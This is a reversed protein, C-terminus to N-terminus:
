IGLEKKLENIVKRLYTDSPLLSINDISVIVNRGIVNRESISVITFSYDLPLLKAGIVNPVPKNIYVIDGAKMKLKGEEEKRALENQEM